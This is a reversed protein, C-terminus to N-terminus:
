MGLSEGLITVLSKSPVFGTVRNEDMNEPHFNLIELALRRMWVLASLVTGPYAYINFVFVPRKDFIRPGALPNAAM